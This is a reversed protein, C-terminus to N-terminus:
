ESGHRYRTWNGAAQAARVVAAAILPSARAPPLAARSRPAAPEFGSAFITERCDIYDGLSLVLRGSADSVYRIEGHIRCHDVVVIGNDTAVLGDAYIPAAAPQTQALAAALLIHTLHALM